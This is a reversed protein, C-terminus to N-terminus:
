DKSPCHQHHGEEETGIHGSLIAQILERLKHAPYGKILAATAGGAEARRKWEPADTLVVVPLAPYMQKLAAVLPLTHRSLDADIIVLDPTRTRIAAIAGRLDFAEAITINVDTALLLKLGEQVQTPQAVILVIARM